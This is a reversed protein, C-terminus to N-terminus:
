AVQQHTGRAWTLADRLQVMARDRQVREPSVLAHADIALAKIIATSGEVALDRNWAAGVVRRTRTDAPFLLVGDRLGYRNMYATIQFVDERSLSLGNRDLTLHKWKADAVLVPDDCDLILFDPRLRLRYMGTETDRLMYRKPTSAALGLGTGLLAYPIARRMIKEFIDDLAFILVNTATSGARTPNPNVGRALGSALDYLPRWHDEVDIVPESLEVLRPSLQCRQAASLQDAANALLAASRRSKTCRQLHEALSLMLRALPNDAQLPAHRIPVRNREPPLQRMARVMDISGLITTMEEEVEHFRRPPGHEHLVGQLEVAAARIVTEFLPVSGLAVRGLHWMRRPVLRAATLLNLMFAADADEDNRGAMSRPLMEITVGAAEVIGM